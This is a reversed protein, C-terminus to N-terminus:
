AVKTISEIKVRTIPKQNFTITHKTTQSYFEFQTQDYPDISSTVINIRIKQTTPLRLFAKLFEWGDMIPMNIDLFIVEPLPLNKKAKESFNDIAVKGNIYDEISINDESTFSLLKKLGFTTIPDDDIIAISNIKNM